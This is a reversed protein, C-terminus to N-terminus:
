PTEGEAPDFDLHLYHELRIKEGEETLVFARIMFVGWGNTSLAFKEEKNTHLRRPNPFSPHLVYQVSVVRDMEGSGDDDLFVSWDWRKDGAYKWSNRLRLSTDTKVYM